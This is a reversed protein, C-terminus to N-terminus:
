IKKRCILTSARENECCFSRRESLLLLNREVDWYHKRYYMSAGLRGDGSDITHVIEYADRLTRDDTVPARELESILIGSNKELGSAMMTSISGTSINRLDNLVDPHFRPDTSIIEDTDLNRYRPEYNNKGVDILHLQWNDPLPGLTPHDWTTYTRDPSIFYIRYPQNDINNSYWKPAILKCFSM